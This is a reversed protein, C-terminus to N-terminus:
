SNSLADDRWKELLDPREILVYGDRTWICGSAVDWSIHWRSFFQESKPKAANVWSWRTPCPNLEIGQYCEAVRKWDIFMGDLMGDRKSEIFIGPAYFFRKTFQEIKELTDLLLIDLDPDVVVEYCRTFDERGDMAAATIWDYWHDDFAYWFGDPKMGMHQEYRHAVEAITVIHTRMRTGNRSAKCSPSPVVQRELCQDWNERTASEGSQSM